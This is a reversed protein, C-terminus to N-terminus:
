LTNRKRRHNGESFVVAKENIYTLLPFWWPAEDCTQHFDGRGDNDSVHVEICRECSLMEKIMSDERSGFKCALINLHSLDLAYPVGSEFLWRYEDWTSVLLTDGAVPYQGEIGVPCGFLDAMRRANDLMGSMTADARFGSHATYAPANLRQSILAAQSFWDSHKDFNAVDAIRHSSLVRVNAHLRFQTDPYAQMLSDALAETVMGFNQPVLQVNEAYLKGFCPERLTGRAAGGIGREAAQEHLLGPYAALSINVNHITHEAKMSQISNKWLTTTTTTSM